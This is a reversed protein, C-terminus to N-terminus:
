KYYSRMHAILDECDGKQPKYEEVIENAKRFATHSGYLCGLLFSLASLLVLVIVVVLTYMTSKKM